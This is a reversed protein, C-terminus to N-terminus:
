YNTLDLHLLSETITILSKIADLITAQIGEGKTFMEYVYDAIYGVKGTPRDVDNCLSFSEPQM